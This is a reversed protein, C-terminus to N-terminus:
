SGSELRQIKVSSPFDLKERQAGAAQFFMCFLRYTGENENRPSCIESGGASTKNELKAKNSKSNTAMKETKKNTNKTGIIKQKSNNNSNKETINYM